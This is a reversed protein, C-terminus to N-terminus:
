HSLESYLLRILPNILLARLSNPTESCCILSFNSRVNVLPAWHVYKPTLCVVSSLRDIPSSGIVAVAVAVNVEVGFRMLEIVNFPPM